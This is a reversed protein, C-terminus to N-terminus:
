PGGSQQAAEAALANLGDSSLQYTSESSRIYTLPKGTFPDLGLRGLKLEDLNHPVEGHEWRYQIIAAHVALLQVGTLDKTFARQSSSYISDLDNGKVYIEADSDGLEPLPKREYAPLALSDIISNIRGNLILSVSQFLQPNVKGLQEKLKQLMFTREEMMAGVAPNPAALWENALTILRACDKESLQNVHATMTRLILTDIAIGVAGGIIMDSQISYGLRLGERLTDFAASVQGDALQVYIVISNLRGLTRLLSYIEFPLEGNPRPPRGPKALGAHFLALARKVQPDALAKRKLSLAAAKDTAANLLQSNRALEGALALEEYGNAGSPMPFLKRFDSNDPIGTQAMTYSPLIILLYLALTLGFAVRLM